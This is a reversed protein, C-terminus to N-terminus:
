HFRIPRRQLDIAQPSKKAESVSDIKSGANGIFRVAEEAEDSFILCRITPTVALAMRSIVDAWKGNISTLPAPTAARIKMPFPFPLPDFRFPTNGM